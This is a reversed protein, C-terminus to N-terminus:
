RGAKGVARVLGDLAADLEQVQTSIMGVADTLSKDFEGRVQGLRNTVAHALGDFGKIFAANVQEIHGSLGALLDQVKDTMRQMQGVLERSVGARQNAEEILGRLTTVLGELRTRQEQYSNLVERMTRSAESLSQTTQVMQGQVEATRKLVQGIQTGAESMGSAATSVAGAGRTLSDAGSVSVQELRQIAANMATTGRNAATSLNDVHDALRELLTKTEQERAQERQVSHEDAAEIQSHITALAKQLVTGVAAQSVAQDRQMQEVLSQVQANLEEQRSKTQVFLKQLETGYIEGTKTSSARIEEILGDLGKRLDNLSQNLKVAGEQQTQSMTARLQDLLGLMTNNMTEQRKEAEVALQRLQEALATNANAGAAALEHLLDQFGSQMGQMLQTNETMVGNLGRMQDGFTGELKALTAALLDNVAEGQNGGLTRTANAITQMPEHLSGAVAETLATSLEAHASSQATILRHSHQQLSHEVAHALSGSFNTLLEKLDNILADKLHRTQVASEETAGVLRSLYEEGAGAEYLTDVAQALAETQRYCWNLLWKEILTILIAFFIAIGSAIFAEQVGQLLLALNKQLKQSNTDVNFNQLGRILGLFTGIIGIGTLIGPLHRFFETHLPTDVLVSTNFFAEAPVTARLRLLRREGDQQGDQEHLTEAYENWAHKLPESHSFQEGVQHKDLRQGRSLGEISRRARQMANGVTVAPRVYSWIFYVSFLGVFVIVITPIIPLQDLFTFM